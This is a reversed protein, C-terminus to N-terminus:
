RSDSWNRTKLQKVDEPNWAAVEGMLPKTVLKGQLPAPKKDESVVPPKAPAIKAPTIETPVLVGTTVKASGGDLQNRTMTQNAAM